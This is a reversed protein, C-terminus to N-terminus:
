DLYDKMILFVTFPSWVLFPLNTKVQSWYVTATCNVSQPFSGLSSCFCQLLNTNLDPQQKVTSIDKLMVQSAMKMLVPSGTWESQEQSWVTNKQGQVTAEEWKSKFMLFSHLVCPSATGLFAITFSICSNVVPSLISVGFSHQVPFFQSNCGLCAWVVAWFYWTLKLDCRALGVQFTVNNLPQRTWSFLVCM